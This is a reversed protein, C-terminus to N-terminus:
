NCRTTPAFCGKDKTVTFKSEYRASGGSGDNNKTSFTVRHTTGEKEVLLCIFKGVVICSRSCKDSKKAKKGEPAEGDNSVEVATEQVESILVPPVAELKRDDNSGSAAEWSGSYEGDGGEVSPALLLRTGDCAEVTVSKSPCGDSGFRFRLFDNPSLCTYIVDKNGKLLCIESSGRSANCDDDDDDDGPNDGPPPDVPPRTPRSTPRPTPRRTPAPAPAKPLVVGDCTKKDLFSLIGDVTSQSFGDTGKSLNPEM